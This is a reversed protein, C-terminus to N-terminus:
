NEQKNRQSLVEVSLLLQSNSARFHRGDKSIGLGYLWARTFSTGQPHSGLGMRRRETRHGPAPGRHVALSCPLRGTWSAWRRPCLASCPLGKTGKNRTEQQTPLHSACCIHQLSPCSRTLSEQPGRRCQNCIGLM